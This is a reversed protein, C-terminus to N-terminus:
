KHIDIYQVEIDNLIDDQFYLKGWGYYWDFEGKNTRDGKYVWLQNNNRLTKKRIPEGLVLVIQEKNMGKRIELKMLSDRTYSDLNKHEEIYIEIRKRILYTPREFYSERNYDILINNQFKLQSVWNITRLINDKKEDYRWVETINNLVEKSDPEGIILVIQEKNMGKEIRLAKLASKISFSVGTNKDLYTKIQEWALREKPINYTNNEYCNIKIFEPHEIFVESYLPFTRLHNCGVLFLALLLSLSIRLIKEKM